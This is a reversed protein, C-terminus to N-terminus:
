TVMMCIVVIGGGEVEVVAVLGEICVTLLLLRIAMMIPVVM